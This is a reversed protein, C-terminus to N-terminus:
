WGTWEVLEAGMLWSQENSCSVAFENIASMATAYDAGSLDVECDLGPDWYSM